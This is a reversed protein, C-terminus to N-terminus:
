SPAARDDFPEHSWDAAADWHEKLGTIRTLSFIASRQPSAVDCYRSIEAVEDFEPTKWAESLLTQFLHGVPRLCARLLNSIARDALFTM